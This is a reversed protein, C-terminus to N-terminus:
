GYGTGFADAMTGGAGSALMNNNLIMRELSFDGMAGYNFNGTAKFVGFVYVNSSGIQNIIEINVGDM